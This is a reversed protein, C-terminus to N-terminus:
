DKQAAYWAAIASIEQESFGKAIRGMVTSSTQGSKFALMAASIDAPNRGTLRPVATDAGKAAPHCGSCSMAGPPAEVAAQAGAPGILAVVITAAVVIQM